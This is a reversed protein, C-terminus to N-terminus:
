KLKFTVMLYVLLIFVGIGCALGMTTNIVERWLDAKEPRIEWRDPAVRRVVIRDEPRSVDRGKLTVKM